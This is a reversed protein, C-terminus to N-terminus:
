SKGDEQVYKRLTNRSIKLAEAAKSSNHAYKLFVRKIHSRIAEELEDPVIEGGTASHDSDALGANMECHSKILQDFDFIELAAARELLNLLERVNGPYGYSTLARIQDATLHKRTRALWWNNAILSIDEKRERLPPVRLQVVNLRMFLDERFKGARLLEVLNRNTSTILRVDVPIEKRGGLRTFTGREIVRLLAAQANPSLDAIEDLFLTGGEALEVAGVEREDAGAFAGKEHGFLRDELLEPSVSTCNFAVFPERCRPSQTHIQLAVNEKGTGSEGLIMVRTDPHKGLQRIYGNLKKMQAGEGLFERRGYHRYRARLRRLDYNWFSDGDGQSLNRVAKVFPKEDQYSRQAYVVADILDRYTASSKDKGAKPYVLSMIGDANVKFAKGVAKALSGEKVDGEYMRVKLLPAIEQNAEESFPVEGIWEVDVKKKRLEKLAEVMAKVNGDLSIGLIHISKWKPGESALYEPLRWKGMSAVEAQGGLGKLAVAAAVAYEACGWGTLILDNSM